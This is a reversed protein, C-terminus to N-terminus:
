KKIFKNLWQRKYRKYNRIFCRDWDSEEKTMGVEVCNFNSNFEKLTEKEM